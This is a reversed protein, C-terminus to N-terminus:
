CTTNWFMKPFLPVAERTFIFKRRDIKLKHASTRFIFEEFFIQVEGSWEREFNASEAFKLLNMMFLLVLDFFVAAREVARVLMRPFFPVLAAPLFPPRFHLDSM